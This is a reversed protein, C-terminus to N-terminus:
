RTIKILGTAFETDTGIENEGTVDKVSTTSDMFETSVPANTIEEYYFFTKPINSRTACCYVYRKWVRSVVIWM